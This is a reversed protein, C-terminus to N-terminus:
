HLINPLYDDPGVPLGGRGSRFLTSAKSHKYARCRDRILADEDFFTEPLVTVSGSVDADLADVNVIGNVGLASSANLVSEASGLFYDAQIDINGGKGGYANAIVDSNNLIVFKPKSVTINGGDGKGGQVSASIESDILYLMYDPHISINGGDAHLAATTIASNEMEVRNSAHITISGADGAGASEAAISSKQKMGLNNVNLEINGGKGAGSASTSISTNGILTMQPTVATIQGADGAGASTSYIGSTREEPRGELAVSESANITIVGGPGAGATSSEIRGGQNVDLTAVNINISGGQGSGGLVSASVLSRDALELIPTEIAVSGGDARRAATSITSRRLRVERSADIAIEGADGSGSSESTVSSGSHMVLRQLNLDIDGARGADTSSTSVEGHETMGMTNTRISISGGSGSGQARAYVGSNEVGAANRGGPATNSIHVSEVATIDINGGQGACESGALVAGGNNLVLRETEIKVNGADGDGLTNGDYTDDGLTNAFVAGNQDVKLDPTRITIDGGDGASHTASYIWSNDLKTGRGSVNVSKSANIDIDGARGAGRTSVTVTGGSTLDLTEVNLTVDGGRGSNYTQGNIMGDQTVTMALTNIEVHGGDGTGLTQAYIGYYEGFLGSDDKGSGSVSVAEKANITITGGDGAGRVSSSIYGRDVELRDADITIDGGRGDGLSGSTIVGNDSVTLLGTATNEELPAFPISEGTEEMNDFADKSVNISIGGADGGDGEFKSSASIRGSDSVIVSERARINIAGGDGSGFNDTLITGEDSVELRDVKINVDGGKGRDKSTSEILGKESVTLHKTIIEINGADGEGQSLSVINRPYADGGTITVSESAIVTIDGARGSSDSNNFSTVQSNGEINVNKAKISIPGADGKGSIATIIAGDETINIDGMESFSSVDAGEESLVVEGPSHTSIINIQGNEALIVGGKIEIDGGIISINNVKNSAIVGQVTLKESDSNLFGFASPPAASLLSDSASKFSNFRVGDSLRLYDATSVHFSGDVSINAGPGIMVGFPNIFFLNANPISFTQINGDIQSAEQTVRAIINSITGPGAYTFKATEGNYINFKSFSHFWNNGERLGYTEDIIGTSIAGAAGISGDAIIEAYGVTFLLLGSFFLFLSFLVAKLTQRLLM